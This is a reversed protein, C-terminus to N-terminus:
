KESKWLTWGGYVALALAALKGLPGLLLVSLGAGLCVLGDLSTRESMRAKLWANVSEMEKEKNSTCLRSSFNVFNRM